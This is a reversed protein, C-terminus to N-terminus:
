QITAAVDVHGGRKVPPYALSYVSGTTPSPFDEHRRCLDKTKRCPRMASQIRHTVIMSNHVLYYISTYRTGRAKVEFVQASFMINLNSWQVVLLHDVLYVLRVCSGCLLM